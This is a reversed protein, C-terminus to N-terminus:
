GARLRAARFVPISIFVRWCTRSCRTLCVGATKNNRACNLAGKLCKANAKLPCCSEASKVSRAGRGERRSRRASSSRSCASSSTRSLASARTSQRPGPASATPWRACSGCRGRWRRPVTGVCFHRASESFFLSRRALLWTYAANFESSIPSEIRSDFRATISAVVSYVADQFEDM